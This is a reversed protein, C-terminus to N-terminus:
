ALAVGTVLALFVIPLVWLLSVWSQGIRIKPMTGSQPPLWQSLMVRDDAPTLCAALRDHQPTQHASM